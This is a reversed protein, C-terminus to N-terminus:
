HDVREDIAKLLRELQGLVPMRERNPGIAATVITDIEMPDGNKRDTLMSSENAATNRCVTMVDAFSLRGATDPYAEALEYYVDEMLRCANERSVLEGNRIGLLATLPNICCNLLLKRYLMARADPQLRFPFPEEMQRCLEELPQPDGRYHAAATVGNGLHRVTWDNERNAGHTISAFGISPFLLDDAQEFHRIGNQIFLMYGIRVDSTLSDFLKPLSGSKVAAIWLAGDPADSPETFANVAFRRGGTDGIRLLGNKQLALSQGPRRTLFSVGHGQEALYSGMLMGIAGAGAIVIEM